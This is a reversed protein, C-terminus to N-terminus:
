LESLNQAIIDMGNIPPDNPSHHLSYNWISIFDEGSSIRM